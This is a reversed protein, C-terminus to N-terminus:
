DIGLAPYVRPPQHFLSSSSSKPIRVFPPQGNQDCGKYQKTLPLGFSESDRCKPHFSKAFSAPVVYKTFFFLFFFFLYLPLFLSLSLPFASARTRCPNSVIVDLTNELTYLFLLYLCPTFTFKSIVIRQLRQSTKLCLFYGKRRQIDVLVKRM